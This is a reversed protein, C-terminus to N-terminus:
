GAWEQGEAGTLAAAAIYYGKVAVVERIHERLQTWPDHIMKMRPCGTKCGWVVYLWYTERLRQAQRWENPSLAVEGRDGARGKVEIRRVQRLGREDPPSVSRLDFGSGDNLKWIESVTWGRSREHRIALEIAFLEVEPDRRMGAGAETTVPAVLASGVHAVRGSRVVAMHALGRMRHERTADLNAVAKSAEDRALTAEKEGDMVRAHLEMQKRQAARISAAFAEDLFRRRIEVERARDQRHSEVLPHQVRARVWGEIRRLEEPTPPGAWPGDPVAGDQTTATLDHLIDPQALALEGEALEQVAVLRAHVPVTRPPEGPDGLSEGELELEFFHLRYPREVRPDLWFSTGAQLPRLDLGLVEDVAAYLAHGPSLLEGDMNEAKMLERKIFSLKPYSKLPEGRQRVALLSRATLKQPVHDIRLLAPNTRRAVRLGVHEAARLFFGEVYEPMLRREESEYNAGRIRGLDVNRRALAIGTAEEYEALREQSIKEIEDIYDDLLGPNYTAERLVDELNVNNLRLLMGIVDFVRDGIAGRIEDLKALLRELVRGEVVPQEAPGRPGSVAVFNFVYVERKQGFRHIRGMRQELRTPNWPMDYNIMLHCFQLNIGEGAADTGICIQAQLRFERQAEKRARADMGGHIVCCRYGKAELSERLCDMTACQETFILLKGNKERVEEFEARELCRFLKNLKSEVGRKETAVGLELLRALASVEDRLQDWREAVVAQQAAEDLADETEDDAEKEPDLPLNALERLRKDRQAQPLGTLEDVLSRLRDYRKQVSLRIARLSSAMRRQFVMRVLATSQKKRGAARPLFTNIYDTVAEYLAWEHESLTFDQTFAHRKVFLKKGDFDRLEEKMRRLIWPSDEQKLLLKVAKESRFAHEDLLSLLNHFQQPNGQNPTATLFLLREARDVLERVLKYRETPEDLSATAAKHAEDLIVLDWRERLLEPRIHDQKAFDLSSICQPFRSWPSAGLQGRAAHSDVIEFCEDFKTSLEDQWQITLPAPCLILTREVAGRLKLEKLLLGAMITKGAGPDDALLFRLRAQPLMREYVAELQHPLAEIGALSVAFHPDWAYALRIRVSEVLLFQKEPDVFAAPGPAAAAQVAALLETRGVTADKPEGRATRVRLLLTEGYDEVAEVTVPDAFHGPLHIRCGIAASLPDDESM